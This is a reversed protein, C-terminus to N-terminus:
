SAPSTKEFTTILPMPRRIQPNATTGNVEIQWLKAAGSNSIPHFIAGVIGRRGVNAFMDLHLERRMNVWGSGRMSVIDGDLLLEHIPIREGDVGFQVDASDFAGQGPTVSLMRFLRIMAPLEYLNAQRLWGQGQGELASTNTLAGQLDCQISLRGSAGTNAEGLDLLFGQLDSDVLRLRYKARQQADLPEVGSVFITGSLTRARIDNEKIDLTPVNESSRIANPDEIPQTSNRYLLGPRNSLAERMESRYSAQSASTDSNRPVVYNANVVSDNPTGQYFSPPQLNNKIQWASADRGFLVEQRSFAFPGSVGTVAVNKIALRDLVLNGFAMPGLATNEGVLSISGCIGSAIGGGGLRGDELQLEVDWERVISEAPSPPSSVRTKGTISVPGRFDVRVLPDRLYSPLCNLLSQDVLLRTAPLWTLMGDWTGDSHLRCQGETQLRSADHNGSLSNIDIRGPRYVINCAVDNVQYPLSTPRVSVARAAHSELERAETIEVSLDIPSSSDKRRILVAVQDLVGSPQIQDWLGRVNKPLAQQLEEDLGVDRGEFFLDLTELNSNRCQCVGHGAIRAGDNRGVFDKLLLRENDLTVAGHVDVIPYRFNDYKISCESFTLELSRSVEGPREATRRFHGQKLMVTGSPHLSLVFKHISSEATNRPTLAKLLTEDIAIPGDAALKLDMLWRPHAKTMTLAGRITQDGATGILENALISDNEYVIDGSINQVPYPFFETELGANKAHVVLKPIWKNGDFFLRAQADVLGNLNLKHWIEQMGVPIAQYLRQDLSLNQLNVSVQMPSGISYGFVDCAFAISTQGSFARVNSLQLLGNKCHVDGSLSELPYPVKPHLM